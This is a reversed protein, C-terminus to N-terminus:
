CPMDGPFDLMKAISCPATMSGSTIVLGGACLPLARAIVYQQTRTMPRESAQNEAPQHSKATMALAAFCDGAPMAGM